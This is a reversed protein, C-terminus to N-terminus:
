SKKSICLKQLSNGSADKIEYRVGPVLFFPGCGEDLILEASITPIWSLEHEEVQGNPCEATISYRFAGRANELSHYTDAFGASVKQKGRLNRIQAYFQQTDSCFLIELNSLIQRTSERPANINKFSQKISWRDAFGMELKQIMQETDPSDASFTCSRKDDENLELADQRLNHTNIFFSSSESRALLYLYCGDGMWFCEPRDYTVNMYKKEQFPTLDLLARVFNAIRLGITIFINGPGARDLKGRLRELNATFITLGQAGHVHAENKLTEYESGNRNAITEMVAKLRNHVRDIHPDQRFTFFRKICSLTSEPQALVVTGESNVCAREGDTFLQKTYFDNSFVSLGM